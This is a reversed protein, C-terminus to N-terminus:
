NSGASADKNLRDVFIVRPRGNLELTRRKYYEEMTEEKIPFLRHYHDDGSAGDTFATAIVRRLKGVFFAIWYIPKM